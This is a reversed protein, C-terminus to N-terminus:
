MIGAFSANQHGSEVEVPQRLMQGLESLSSGARVM